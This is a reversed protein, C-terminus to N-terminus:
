RVWCRRLEYYEGSEMAKMMVKECKDCAMKREEKRGMVEEMADCWEEM